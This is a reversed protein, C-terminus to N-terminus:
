RHSLIELTKVLENIEVKSHRTVNNKGSIISNLMKHYYSSIIIEVEKLNLDNLLQDIEKLLKLCYNLCEHQYRPWPNVQSEHESLDNETLESLDDILQFTIGLKKGLRHIQKATKFNCNETLLYPGVLSLQILKATKLEHTLVLNEFNFNMELSLDLTQGHILGKPGTQHLYYALLQQHQPHKIKSILQLSMNLLGDGVLLARWQGFIKHTSPKGRRFDDNDMCPLDDHVLTYAHHIEVSAALLLHNDQNQIKFDRAMAMVLNPRFLKGAPFLAYLYAETISHKPLLPIVLKEIKSELSNM